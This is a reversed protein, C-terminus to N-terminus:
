HARRRAIALGAMGLALLVGTTPEPIIEFRSTIGVSDGPSLVFRLIIEIETAVGPTVPLSAVGTSSTATCGPDNPTPSCDATTIPIAPPTLPLFTVGDIRGRYFTTGDVDVLLTGDGSSDTATVGVSSFVIENYNFAPIPMVVSAIYVVNFATTNTFNINNTVFPDAKMSVEWGDITGVTGGLLIDDIAYPANLTWTGDAGPQLPEGLTGLSNPVIDLLEYADLPIELGTGTDISAGVRFTPAATASQPALGAFVVLALSALALARATSLAM